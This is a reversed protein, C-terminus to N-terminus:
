PSFHNHPLVLPPQHITRAQRDFCVSSYSHLYMGDGAVLVLEGFLQCSSFHIRCPSSCHWHYLLVPVEEGHFVMSEVTFFLQEQQFYSNHFNRALDQLRCGFYRKSVEVWLTQPELKAYGIQSDFLCHLAPALLYRTRGRCIM